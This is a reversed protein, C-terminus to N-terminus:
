KPPLIKVSLGKSTKLINRAKGIARYTANGSLQLIRSDFDLSTEKIFMRYKFPILKQSFNLIKASLDKKQYRRFFATEESSAIDSQINFNNLKFQRLASNQYGAIDLKLKTNNIFALRRAAAYQFMQNGLGGVIRAIIM